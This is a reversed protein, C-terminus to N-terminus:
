DLRAHYEVDIATACVSLPTDERLLGDEVSRQIMFDNEICSYMIFPARNPTSFAMWYLKPLTIAFGVVAIVVLIYRSIKVM